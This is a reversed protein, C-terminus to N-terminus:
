REVGTLSLLVKGARDRERLLDLAESFSELPLVRHVVPRIEGTALLDLTTRYSEVGAGASGAIRARMRYLWRLDLDIPGGAHTGCVGIRGLPAVITPLQRWVGPDAATDVVVDVGGPVLELVRQALAGEERGVLVPEVGLGRVTEAKAATSATALVRCGRHRALQVAASGVGGAGGIVLVTDSRDIPGCRRLMQDAVPFSHSFASADVADVGPPIRFLNTVPVAVLQAWGGDRHLGVIRLSACADDDGQRCPRCTGCAIGPKVVVRDGVAVHGAAAPGLAVVRGAADIGPIVVDPAGSPARGDIQLLELHNVGVVDVEVLAEGPAPVPDPVESLGLRVGDAARHLVVARM